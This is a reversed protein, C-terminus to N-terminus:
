PVTKPIVIRRGLVFENGWNADTQSFLDWTAQVVPAQGPQINESFEGTPSAKPFHHQVQVTDLFDAVGLIYFRPLLSTGFVIESGSVVGIKDAVLPLTQFGPATFYLTAANFSTVM